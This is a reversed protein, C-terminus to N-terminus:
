APRPVEYVLAPKLTEIEDVPQPPRWTFMTFTLKEPTVDILTFGNRETPALSQELAVRTSPTTEVSRFASPFGLDGTGLTGGTIVHVPRALTLADSRLLRAAASGHLDGQVIVGPRKPQAGIAAILRQHQAFWGRQWGPKPPDSVLRGSKQDLVDPYWDGLKGSSYGFPLSPAHILHATDAARTRAILWDETWQPVVKAHAGKYDVYRRCEYLLTEVLKGFRLTGCHLNTGDPAGAVDGGPLWAPRNADPLFEPYYLHQTEQAGLTGYTDPPLTAVRDDFEDNEFYDHDDTLFFAPTSRLVTGYLGPIQYDCVGLFISANKPHLMPVSRDIPGGFKPWVQERIFQAHAKNQSTELDWYIHDGNAILVDPQFSLGRALLRRRAAMDLFFTKGQYSPGDYGGACTYALIRVHEAPADPAPFTRLPWSDCLPAGGADRIRLEHTTAPRLGAVDFRWYRGNAATAFGEVSRGGISLRPPASLPAHFSAKILFREHSATPILHALAGSSWEVQSTAAALPSRGLWALAAAGASAVLLERRTLEIM